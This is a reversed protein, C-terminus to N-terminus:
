RQGRPLRHRTPFRLSHTLPETAVAVVVGAIVKVSPAIVGVLTLLTTNDPDEVGVSATVPVDVMEPVCEPVDDPVLVPSWVVIVPFAPVAVASCVALFIFPVDKLPVALIVTVASAVVNVPVDKFEGTTDDENVDTPVRVPPAVPAPNVTANPVLVIVPAKGEAFKVDIYTISSPDVTM